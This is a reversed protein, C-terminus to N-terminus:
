EMTETLVRAWDALRLVVYSEEAPRGRRKAVVVPVSGSRAAERRAEDLWGALDLARCAKCEITFGPLGDIDGRDDPRGAGYSREAHVLGAARLVRVVEREFAAGRARMARGNTAPM